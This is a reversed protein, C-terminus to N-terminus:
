RRILPTGGGPATGPVPETRGDAAKSVTGRARKFREWTSMLGLRAELTPGTVRSSGRSGVVRAYVIRPSVGHKLVKIRRLSGSYLGSLASAMSGNSFRTRWSHEPSIKDYPDPVGKLWPEPRSGIFAFQVDETYGGSTSFYYTSALHHRYFVVNGATARVARDSAKTETGKGGYVQSRADSYVDFRGRGESAIGYTRAAVAQARLAAQSWSAPMENPVVGEVYADVNVKNVLAIGSGGGLALLRGRYTGRGLVHIPGGSAQGNRGCSALRTGTRADTLAVGSGSAVFAYAHRSRLHRGCAANAKSFRVSGAGSALLVKIPKARRHRLHTGQYYHRLIQGYRRGHKALGYAGYQSLGVGHGFGHGRVVWVKAAASAALALSATALALIAAARRV